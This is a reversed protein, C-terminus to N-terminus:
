SNVLLRKNKFKEKGVFSEIIKTNRKNLPIELISSFSKKSIIKAEFPNVIRFDVVKKRKDLWLALFPFFVFWSTLAFDRGHLNEFVINGTNKTRLILGTSFLSVKKAPVNIKKGNYRVLVM